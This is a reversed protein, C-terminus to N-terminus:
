IANFIYDVEASRVVGRSLFLRFNRDCQEFQAAERGLGRCQCSTCNLFLWEDRKASGYRIQTTCACM